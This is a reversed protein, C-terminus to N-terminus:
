QFATLGIALTPFWWNKAGPPSEQWNLSAGPIPTPAQGLAAGLVEDLNSAPDTSVILVRRGVEALALGIACALSTKGVGGKGTFFLHRTPTGSLPIPM